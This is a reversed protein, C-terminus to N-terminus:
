NTGKDRKRRIDIAVGEFQMAVPPHPKTVRVEVESIIPFDDLVRSAIQETLTELLAIPEGEVIHRILTMIDVYNVTDAIDGSHAAYSIDLHAVLDVYFRQGLKNEETFLGHYGYFAM